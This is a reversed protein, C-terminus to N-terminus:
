TITAVAIREFSARRHSITTLLFDKSPGFKCRQSHPVVLNRGPHDRELGYAYCGIGLPSAQMAEWSSGDGLGRTTTFRM